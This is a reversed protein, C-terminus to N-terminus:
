MLKKSSRAMEPRPGFCPLLALTASVRRFSHWLAATKAAQDPSLALSEAVGRWM